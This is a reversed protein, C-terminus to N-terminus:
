VLESPVSRYIRTLVASAVLMTVIDVGGGALRYIVEDATAYGEGWPAFAAFVAGYFAACGITALVSAGAIAGGLGRTARWSARLGLGQGDLIAVSPLGLGLRFLLFLALWGAICVLGLAAMAVGPSVGVGESHWIQLDIWITVESSAGPEVGLSTLALVPVLMVAGVIVGIVLGVAVWGLVYKGIIVLRMRPVFRAAEGLYIFRHWASAVAGLMGLFVVSVYWELPPGGSVQHVDYIVWHAYRRGALANVALYVVFWPGGIRLVAGPNRALDGLAGFFLSTATVRPEPTM